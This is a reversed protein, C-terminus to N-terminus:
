SAGRKIEQVQCKAPGLTEKLKEIARYPDTSGCVFVDVAAYEYEPWTHISIHSEKLMVMGSVGNGPTLTRFHAAILSAGCFEVAARVAAEIRAADDLHGAGWLDAIVHVGVCRTVFDGEPSV